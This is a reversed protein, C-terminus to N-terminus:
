AAVGAAEDALAMLLDFSIRKFTRFDIKSKSYDSDSNHTVDFKLILAQIEQESMATNMDKMYQLLEAYDLYGDRNKDASLFSQKLEQNFQEAPIGLVKEVKAMDTLRLTRGRQGFSRLREAATRAEQSPEVDQPTTLELPEQKIRVSKQPLPEKSEDGVESKVRVVGEIGALVDDSSDQRSHSSTSRRATRERERKPEREEDGGEDDELRAIRLLGEAVNEFEDDYFEDVFDLMFLAFELYSLNKRRNTPRLPQNPDVHDTPAPVHEEGVLSRVTAQAAVEGREVRYIRSLARTLDSVALTGTASAGGTGWLQFLSKLRPDAMIARVAADSQQARVTEGLERSAFEVLIDYYIHKFGAFDIQPVRSAEGEASDAKFKRLVARVGRADLPLDHREVFNFFERHDLYGDRDRDADAFSARLHEMFEGVTMGFISAIKRVDFKLATKTRSFLPATRESAMADAHHELDRQLRSQSRSGLVLGSGARSNSRSLSRSLARSGMGTARSSASSKMRATPEIGQEDSSSAKKAKVKDAQTLLHDAVAGFEIGYEDRCLEVILAAFEDYALHFDGRHDYALLAHVTLRVTADADRIGDLSKLEEAIDRFDVHGKQDHDWASFLERMRPDRKARLLARNAEVNMSQSMTVDFQKYGEAIAFEIMIDYIIQRFARFDIRPQGHTGGRSKSEDEGFLEFLSRIGSADLALKQTAVYAEFEEISLYGDGDRDAELFSEQLEHKFQEVSIGLMNEVREADMKVSAGARAFLPTQDAGESTEDASPWPASSATYQPAAQLLYEAIEDFEFGFREECLDTVFEAFHDLTLRSKRQREGRFDVALMAYLTLRQEEEVGRAKEFGRLATALDRFDIFGKQNTDWASFVAALLPSERTRRIEKRRQLSEETLAEPVMAAFEVSMDYIIKKFGRFDIHPAASPELACNFALVLSQIAQASLVFKNKLLYSQLEEFNLFGDGDEDADIFAEKLEETFEEVSVGLMNELKDKNLYKATASRLFPRSGTTNTNSRSMTRSMNRSMNRSMKRSLHRPMTQPLDKGSTDEVTSRAARTTMASELLSDALENFSVGYRQECLEIILSTFAAYDLTQNARTDHALLAHLALRVAGSASQMLDLQRMASALDSFDVFGKGGVDWAEFLQRMRADQAGNQISLAQLSSPSGSKPPVGAGTAHSSMRDTLGATANTDINERGLGTDDENNDVFSAFEVIMDYCFTKFGRFDVHGAGTVDFLEILTRVSQEDLLMKQAKLYPFLEDFDLLGDGGVDAEDFAVRLEHVFMEVTIGLLEEVKNDLMKVSKARALAAPRDSMVTTTSNMAMSSQSRQGMSMAGPSGLNRSSNARIVPISKNRAVSLLHDALSGFDATGFQSVCLDVIVNAFADLDLRNQKHSDYKMLARLAMRAASGAGNQRGDDTRDDSSRAAGSGALTELKAIARVLDSFDVYGRHQTDWADFLLQLRGDQRASRVSMARHQMMRQVEEDKEELQEQQSEKEFLIVVDYVIRRFGNIDVSQSEPEGFLDILARTAGYGLPLKQSRFYGLLEPLDLRDDENQDAKVFAACLQDDFEALSMKMISEVLAADMIFERDSSSRVFAASESALVPDVSFGRTFTRNFKTGAGGPGGPGPQAPSFGVKRTPVKDLLELLFRDVNDQQDNDTILAAILNCFAEYNMMNNEDEDDNQQTQQQKYGLMALMGMKSAAPMEKLIELKRIARSLVRFDLVGTGDPDFNSFIKRMRVDEAFLEQFQRRQEDLESYRLYELETDEIEDSVGDDEGAADGSDFYEDSVDLDDVHVGSGSRNSIRRASGSASRTDDGAHMEKMLEYVVRRFGVVNLQHLKGVGFSHIMADVVDEDVNTAGQQEFHRLLEDRGIFGDGDEDLLGFAQRVSESFDAVSQGGTARAIVRANLDQSSMRNMTRVSKHRKMAKCKRYYNLLYAGTAIYLSYDVTGDSDVAAMGVMTALLMRSLSLGAESLIVALQEPSFRGSGEDFSQFVNQLHAALEGVTGSTLMLSIAEERLLERVQNLYMIEAYVPVFREYSILFTSEPDAKKCLADIEDASLGLNENVICAAFEEYTINEDEDLDYECFVSSFLSGLDAKSYGKITASAKAMAEGLSEEHVELAAARAFVACILEVCVPKFAFFSIQGELEPDHDRLEGAIEDESLGIAAADIADQFEKLDLYGDNNQDFHRFIPYLLDEAEPSELDMSLLAKANLYMAFSPDEEDEGDIATEDGATASSGKRTRSPPPLDEIADAFDALQADSLADQSVSYKLVLAQALFKPVNRPRACVALETIYQLVPQLRALFEHPLEEASARASM